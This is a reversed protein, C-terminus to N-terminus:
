VVEQRLRSKVALLLRGQVVKGADQMQKLAYEASEKAKAKDEASANNDRLTTMAKNFQSGWKDQVFGFSQQANWLKDLADAADYAKQIMEGIGNNFASFDASAIAYAFNDFVTNAAAIANRFTDGVTQSGDFVVKNFGDIALKGAGIAAGWGVLTKMNIGLANGFQGFTNSTGNTKRGLDEIEKKTAEIRPKLDQMAKSMAQGIQGKRETDSMQQYEYTLDKLAKQMERLSGKANGSATEMKGLSQIFKLEDASAKNVEEGNKRMEAIMSRVGATAHKINDDFEKNDVRLKLVSEAM